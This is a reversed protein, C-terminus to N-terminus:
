IPKRSDDGEKEARGQRLSVLPVARPMVQSGRSVNVEARARQRSTTLENMTIQISVATRWTDFSDISPPM